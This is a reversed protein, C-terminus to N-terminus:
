LEANLTWRKVEVPFTVGGAQCAGAHGFFWMSRTDTGSLELKGSEISTFPGGSTSLAYGSESRETTYVYPFGGSICLSLEGEKTMPGPTDVMGKFAKGEYVGTVTDGPLPVSPGRRAAALVEQLRSITSFDSESLDGHASIFAINLQRLRLRKELLEDPDSPYRYRSESYDMVADQEAATLSEWGTRYRGPILSVMFEDNWRTSKPFVMLGDIFFTRGKTGADPNKGVYTLQSGPFVLGNGFSAVLNMLKLIRMERSSQNQM